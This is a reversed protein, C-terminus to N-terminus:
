GFEEFARIGAGIVGASNKYKAVKVELGKSVEPMLYEGLGAEIESRVLTPMEETLGGGLVVLEPNMFNVISSLAIGAVRLRARILESISKDGMKAANSLAGWTVKALDTGVKNFLNPAWQKVGMALAAGGIAAKSAMRDLNGHSELTEAGGIHQTLISGVQGAVGSAGHYLRGDIIAAGGVGTGFFVGLVHSYGAAVGLQHEGYLGLQADNGIVTPLRLINKFLRGLDLDELPLLNPSAEVSITQHNVRGACAVGVGVLSIKEKRAEKALCTVAHTLRKIFAKQGDQPATKFKEEALIKCNKNLLACLTKTGGIDVAIAGRKGM